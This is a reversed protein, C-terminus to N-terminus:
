DQKLNSSWKGANEVDKQIAAAQAAVTGIADLGLPIRLGVTDDYAIKRVERAAKSADGAAKKLDPSSLFGRVFKTACDPATYAPHEPVVVLSEADVARTSFGGLELLTM